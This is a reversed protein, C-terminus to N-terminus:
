ASGPQTGSGQALDMNEDGEEEVDLTSESIRPRKDGKYQSRIHNIVTALPGPRWTIFTFVTKQKPKERDPYVGRIVKTNQFHRSRTKENTIAIRLAKNLSNNTKDDLSTDLEADTLFVEKIESCSVSDKSGGAILNQEVFIKFRELKDITQAESAKLITKPITIDQGNNFYM